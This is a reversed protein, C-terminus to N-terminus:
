PRRSSSSLSFYCTAGTLILVTSSSRGDKAVLISNCQPEKVAIPKPPGSYPNECGARGSSSLSPRQDIIPDDTTKHCTISREYTFGYAKQDADQPADLATQTRPVNGELLMYVRHVWEHELTEPFAYFIYGYEFTEAMAGLDKMRPFNENANWVVQTQWFNTSSMKIANVAAAGFKQAALVRGRKIADVMKHCDPIPADLDHATLTPCDVGETRVLFQDYTEVPVPPVVAVHKACATLLLSSLLLKYM